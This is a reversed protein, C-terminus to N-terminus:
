VKVARIKGVTRIFPNVFNQFTFFINILYDFCKTGEWLSKVQEFKWRAFLVPHTKM